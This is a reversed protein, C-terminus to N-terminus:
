PEWPSVVCIAGPELGRGRLLIYTFAWKVLRKFSETAGRVSLIGVLSEAKSGSDSATELRKRLSPPRRRLLWAEGKWGEGGGGVLRDLGGRREKRRGPLGFLVFWPCLPNRPM